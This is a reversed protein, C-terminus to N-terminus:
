SLVESAARRGLSTIQYRMPKFKRDAFGFRWLDHMAHMMARAEPEITADTANSLIELAWKHNQTLKSWDERPLEPM